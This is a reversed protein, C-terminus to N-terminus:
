IATPTTTIWYRWNVGNETVADSTRVGGCKEIVRASARNNSCCTV